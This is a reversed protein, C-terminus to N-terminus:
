RKLRAKLDSVLAESEEPTVFNEYVVASGDEFDEPAHATDVLDPNHSQAVLAESPSAYNSNIRRRTLFKLESVLTARRTFNSSKSCLRIARPGCRWCVSAIMMM